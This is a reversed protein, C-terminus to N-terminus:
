DQRMLVYSIHKHITGKILFSIKSVLVELM